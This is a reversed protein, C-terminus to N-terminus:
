EKTPESVSGKPIPMPKAKQMMEKTLGTRGEAIDRMVAQTNDTFSEANAPVFCQFGLFLLILSAIIGKTKNMHTKM